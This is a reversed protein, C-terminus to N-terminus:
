GQSSIPKPLYVAVQKTFEDLTTAQLFAEGLKTLQQLDKIQALQEALQKQEAESIQFRWQVFRLLTQRQAEIGEAVGAAKGQQYLMKREQELATVLM